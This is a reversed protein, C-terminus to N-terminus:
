FCHFLGGLFHDTKNEENLLKLENLYDRVAGKDEIMALMIHEPQIQANKYKNMCAGAAALIEQSYNTLREIDVM